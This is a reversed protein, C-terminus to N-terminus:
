FTFYPFKDLVFEKVREKNYGLLVGIIYTEEPTKIPLYGGHRKAIKALQQAQEDYGERYFVYARNMGISIYKLGSKLLKDVSNKSAGGYFGINRKGDIVTQLSSDSTYAESPDIEESVMKKILDFQTETILIKAM